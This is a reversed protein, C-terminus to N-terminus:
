PRVLASLRVGRLGAAELGAALSRIAQRPDGGGTLELEVFEGAQLAVPTGDGNTEVAGRVAHGGASRALLAQLGTRGDEPPEYLFPRDLGLSRAAAALRGGTGFSHFVGGSDIRPLPEDGSAVLAHLTWRTPTSDLAFSASVGRRRLRRALDAADSARADVLVGVEPLSTETSSM